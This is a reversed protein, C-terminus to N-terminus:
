LWDVLSPPDDWESRLWLNSFGMFRIRGVRWVQPIWWSKLFWCFIIISITEHRLYKLTNVSIIMMKMKQDNSLEHINIQKTTQNTTYRGWQFIHFDIPLIVDWINHFIFFTGFWWGSNNLVLIVM